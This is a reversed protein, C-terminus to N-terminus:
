SVYLPKANKRHRAVLTAIRRGKHPIPRAAVPVFEPDLLQPFLAELEARADESVSKLAEPGTFLSETLAGNSYVVEHADFLFHFYEVGEPGVEDYDVGEVDLLKKAPVLIEETDFMKGAIASRVVVRHQPSVVLDRDPMNRGLAWASIRIPRLDPNARLEAAGLKKSGIWRIAQPGHDATMVLDGVALAEVPCEGDLTRIATGAAFCILTNWPIEQGDTEVGTDVTTYQVGPVPLSTGAFGANATQGTAPNRFRVIYFREPTTSGAPTADFAYELEVQSGVPFTIGNATIPQQILQNNNVTSQPTGGPLDDVFGDQFLLDPTGNNDPDDVTLRIIPAGVDVQFVEGVGAGVTQSQSFISTGSTPGSVQTIDDFSYFGFSYLAM